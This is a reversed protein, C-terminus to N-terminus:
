QCSQKFDGPDCDPTPLPQPAPQTQVPAPPPPEDTCGVLLAFLALPLLLHKM